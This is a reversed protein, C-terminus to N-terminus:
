WDNSVLDTLSPSDQQGSISQSTEAILQRRTSKEFIFTKLMQEAPLHLRMQSVWIVWSTSVTEILLGAGMLVVWILTKGTNTANELCQLLKFLAFRSGFESLANVLVLLCQQAMETLFALLFQKWLKDKGKVKQQFQQKLTQVRALHGIDPIDSM